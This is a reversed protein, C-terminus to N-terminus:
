EKYRVPKLWENKVLTINVNPTRIKVRRSDHFRVMAVGMRGVGIRVIEQNM